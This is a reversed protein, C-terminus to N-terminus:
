KKVNKSKNLILQLWYEPSQNTNEDISMGYKAKDKESQQLMVTAFQLLAKQYTTPLQNYIELM